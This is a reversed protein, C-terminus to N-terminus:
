LDTEEIPKIIENLNNTLNFNITDYEDFYLALGSLVGVWEACVEDNQQKEKLENLKLKIKIITKRISNSNEPNVTCNIYKLIEKTTNNIINGKFINKYILSYQISMSKLNVDSIIFSNLIDIPNKSVVISNLMKLYKDIEIYETKSYFSSNDYSWKQRNVPFCKIGNKIIIGSNLSM